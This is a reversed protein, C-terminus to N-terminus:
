ERSMQSENYIGAKNIRCLWKVDGSWAMSSNLEVRGEAILNDKDGCASLDDTYIKVALGSELHITNAKSDEICDTVSLPVLDEEVRENFDVYIRAEKM